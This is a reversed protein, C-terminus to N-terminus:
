DRAMIPDPSEVFGARVKSFEATGSITSNRVRVGDGASVIDTVKLAEAVLNDIDLGIVVQPAHERLAELM